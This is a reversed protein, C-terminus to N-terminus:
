RLKLNMLRGAFRASSLTEVKNWSRPAALQNLVAGQRPIYVMQLLFTYALQLFLIQGSVYLVSRATFFFVVVVRGGGGGDGGRGPPPADLQKKPFPDSQQDTRM